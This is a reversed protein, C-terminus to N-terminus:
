SGELLARLGAEDLVTVGLSKAKELKSGPEAGSILATTKKSVTSTVRGGLAELAERADERSMGELTGTIVYQRGVLPQARPVEPAAGSGVGAERLRAMLRENPPQLFWSHVSSAVTPGIEYLADIEEPTAKGLAELSGFHQALLLAVREGVFRIGLGFLLRRPERTKSAEIQALLNKGSKEAMRPLEVLSELTLHYLDAFDRVRGSDVLQKVLVDGLGEIDMAERRAYHKPREEIQAPCSANPCRRDVEGELKECPTGCVPCKEPPRWPEAEPPRRELLVRVVKPIV